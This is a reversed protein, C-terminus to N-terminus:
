QEGKYLYNCNYKTGFEISVNLGDSKSTVNAKTNLKHRWDASHSYEITVSRGDDFRLTLEHPKSDSYESFEGIFLVASGDVKDKTLVAGAWPGIYTRTVISKIYESLTRIPMPDNEEWSSLTLQGMGKEFLNGAKITDLLNVGEEDTIHVLMSASRYDWEGLECSAFLLITTAMLSLIAKKKM